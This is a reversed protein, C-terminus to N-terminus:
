RVFQLCNRHWFKSQGSVRRVSNGTSYSTMENWEMASDCWGCLTVFSNFVTATDSNRSAALEGFQIPRQIRLWRTENWQRIVGVVYRNDLSRISSVTATDSNLSASFVCRLFDVVTATEYKHSASLQDIQWLLKSAYNMTFYISTTM